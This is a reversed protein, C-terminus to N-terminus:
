VRYIDDILEHNRPIYEVFVFSLVFEVDFILLYVFNMKTIENFFFDEHQQQKKAKTFLL